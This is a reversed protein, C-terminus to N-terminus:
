WAPKVTRALIRRPQRQGAGGHRAAGPGTWNCPLRSTAPSFTQRDAGRSENLSRERATSLYDQAPAASLEAVMTEATAMTVNQEGRCRWGVCDGLHLSSPVALFALEHALAHRVNGANPHTRSM